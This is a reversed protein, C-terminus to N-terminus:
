RVREPRPPPSTAGQRRWRYHRCVAVAVAIAFLLAIAGKWSREFWARQEGFAADGAAMAWLVLWTWQWGRPRSFRDPRDTFAIWVAVVAGGVLVLPVGVRWVAQWVSM